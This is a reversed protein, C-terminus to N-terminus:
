EEDDKEEPDALPDIEIEKDELLDDLSKFHPIVEQIALEIEKKASSSDMIWVKLMRAIDIALKTWKTSEISASSSNTNFLAEKSKYICTNFLDTLGEVPNVDVQKGKGLRWAIFDIGQHLAWTKLILEDNNRTKELLEIKTLRDADVVDFFIKAYMDILEVKLEFLGAIREFDNCAILCSEIYKRKTANENMSKAENFLIGEPGTPNDIIKDTLEDIGKVQKRIAISRNNYIAM